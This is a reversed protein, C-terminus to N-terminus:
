KNALFQKTVETNESSEKIKERLDSPLIGDVFDAAFKSDGIIKMMLESYAESQKFEELLEKSKRFGRGDPSKVGYSKDIISVFLKYIKTTDKAKIISDLRQKLGGETSYEMDILEAKSLNFRYEEERENGDYDVYKLPIKIM